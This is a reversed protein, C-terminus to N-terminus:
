RVSVAEIKEPYRRAYDAIMEPTRDASGDDRILIRIDKETQDILSDLQAGLYREGNYTAVLIDIM